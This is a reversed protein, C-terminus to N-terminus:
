HLFPTSEFASSRVSPSGIAHRTQLVACFWSHCSDWGAGSKSNGPSCPINVSMHAWTRSSSCTMDSCNSQLWCSTELLLFFFRFCTRNHLKACCQGKLIKQQLRQLLRSNNNATLAQAKKVKNWRPISQDPVSKKQQTQKTKPHQKLAKNPKTQKPKKIRVKRKIGNDLLSLVRM